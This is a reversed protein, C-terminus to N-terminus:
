WTHLAEVRTNGAAMVAAAAPMDRHEDLVEALLWACVLTDDGGSVLVGGSDSFSLCSVAQPLLLQQLLLPLPLVHYLLVSLLLAPYTHLCCQYPLPLLPSCFCFWCPNGLLHM